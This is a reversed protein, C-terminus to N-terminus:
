FAFAKSSRKPSKIPKNDEIHRKMQAFYVSELEATLNMFFNVLHYAGEDSIKEPLFDYINARM